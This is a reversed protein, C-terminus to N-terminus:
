RKAVTPEAISRIVDVKVCRNKRFKLESGGRGKNVCERLSGGGEEVARSQNTGVGLELRGVVAYNLSRCYDNTMRCSHWRSGGYM